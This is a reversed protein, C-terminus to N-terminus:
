SIEHRVAARRQSGIFGAGGTILITRKMTADNESLIAAVGALPPNRHRVDNQIQGQRPGLLGPPPGQHPYEATRCPEIRCKDHGAAAAIEVAFDYWSCVDEDSFHYLGEHGRLQGGEIVSFIGLALDGAYTPNRDPRLGGEAVGAEATLRLM